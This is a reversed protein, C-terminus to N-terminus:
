NLESERFSPVVLETRLRLRGSGYDDPEFDNPTAQLQGSYKPTAWLRGCDNPTTWLRDSTVPAMRHFTNTILCKM